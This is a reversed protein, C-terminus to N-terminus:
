RLLLIKTQQMQTTGIARVFYVGAPVERGSHNKGDWIIKHFGTAWSQEPWQRLVQGAINVVDVRLIQASSLHCSIALGPAASRRSPMFPNPFAPLLTFSEPVDRRRAVATPPGFIIEAVSDRIAQKRAFLVDGPCATVGVERHGYIHDCTGGFAPYLSQDQPHVGREVCKWALLRHLASLMEPAPQHNYPPHFYGLHAVGMSGANYGDHAGQVDTLDDEDERGQFIHGHRCILYNYGIDWWGNTDMHFAQIARVRAACDEWEEVQYDSVSATHHFAFHRALTYEYGHSPPRAGWEARKYFHPKPVHQRPADNWSSNEGAAPDPGATSNIIQLAMRALRPSNESKSELEIKYQVFRSNPHVFVLAGVYDGAFPNPGGEETQPAVTEDAPTFIWASWARGDASVRISIKITTGEPAHARWHPGVANFAFGSGMVPSIFAAAGAAPSLQLDGGQLSMGSLFQGHAFAGAHHLVQISKTEAATQPAAAFAATEMFLVFAALARAPTPM